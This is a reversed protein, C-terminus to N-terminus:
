YLYLIYVRGGVGVGVALGTISEDRFYTKPNHLRCRVKCLIKKKQTAIRLPIM